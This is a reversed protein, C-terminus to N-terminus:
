YYVLRGTFIPPVSTRVAEIGITGMHVAVTKTAGSRPKGGRVLEAWHALTDLNLWVDGLGTQEALRETGRWLYSRRGGYRGDLKKAREPDVEELVDFAHDLIDGHFGRRRSLRVIVDEMADGIQEKLRGDAGPALREGARVRATSSM